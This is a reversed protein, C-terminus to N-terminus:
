NIKKWPNNCPNHEQCTTRVCNPGADAFLLPAIKKSLELMKCALNRIEWQARNCCRISFFHRLERANMTLVIKTSAANPLIYRADEAPIQASLFEKYLSQCAKLFNEYKDLLNKNEKITDPIIYDIGDKFKVYRQSQVSFSAIRHRTIQALLARSVGEIGFTFSSHELVSTHGSTIVRKLLDGIKEQSFNADIEDIGAASYCLRAAIACTKEPDPTHKLLKVKLKTQM